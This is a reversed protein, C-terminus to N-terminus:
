AAQTGEHALGYTAVITLRLVDERVRTVKHALGPKLAILVLSNFVPVLMSRKRSFVWRRVSNVASAQAAEIREAQGVILNGGFERKWAKSFHLVASLRNSPYDSCDDHQVICDGIKMRFPVPQRTVKLKDGMLQGLWELFPSSKLFESCKEVGLSPGSSTCELAGYAAARSDATQIYRRDQLLELYTSEALARDLCNQIRLYGRQFLASRVSQLDTEAFSVLPMQWPTYLYTHM